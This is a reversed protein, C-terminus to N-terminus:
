KRVNRQFPNSTKYIENIAPSAKFLQMARPLTPAFIQDSTSSFHPFGRSCAVLVKQKLQSQMWKHYTLATENAAIAYFWYQYTKDVFDSVTASINPYLRVSIVVEVEVFLANWLQFMDSINKCFSGKPEQFNYNGTQSWQISLEDEYSANRKYRDSIEWQEKSFHPLFNEANTKNTKIELKLITILEIQEIAKNTSETISKTERNCYGM